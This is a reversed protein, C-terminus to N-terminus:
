THQNIVQFLRTYFSLSLSLSHTGTSIYAQFAMSFMYRFILVSDLGVSLYKLIVMKYKYSKEHSKFHFHSMKNM